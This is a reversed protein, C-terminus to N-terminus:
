LGTGCASYGGSCVGKELLDRDQIEFALSQESQMFNYDYVFVGLLLAAVISLQLSM